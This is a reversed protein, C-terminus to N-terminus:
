GPKNKAKTITFSDIDSSNLIKKITKSAVESTGSGYIGIQM